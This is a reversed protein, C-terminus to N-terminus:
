LLRQLAQKIELYEAARLHGEKRMVISGQRDVIIITPVSSIQLKNQLVQHSDIYSQELLTKSDRGQATAVATEISEDISVSLFLAKAKPAHIYTKIITELEQSVGSCSRCWSAWFQLLLPKGKFTQGSVPERGADLRTLSFDSSLSKINDPTKAYSSASLFVWFFTAFVWQKPPIHLVFTQRVYMLIEGTSSAPGYFSGSVFFNKAWTNGIVLKFVLSCLLIKKFVFLASETAKAVSMTVPSTVKHNAVTPLTHLPFHGFTQRHANSVM